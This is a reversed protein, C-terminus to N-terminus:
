SVNAGTVLTVPAFAKVPYHDMTLYPPSFVGSVLHQGRNGHPEGWPTLEWPRSTQNDFKLSPETVSISQAEYM